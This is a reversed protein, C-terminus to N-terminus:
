EHLHERVLRRANLFDQSYRLDQERPRPFPVDLVPKLQGDELVLIRDGLMLAEEVDHTVFVVAVTNRQWFTLLWEQMRERTLVDLAGFPEDMLVIQSRAGFARAIAVRQSEGGSLEHPYRDFLDAMGLESLLKEAKELRTDSESASDCKSLAL